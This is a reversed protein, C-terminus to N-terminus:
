EAVLLSTISKQIPVVRLNTSLQERWSYYHFTSILSRCQELTQAAVSPSRDRVLNEWFFAGALKFSGFQATSALSDWSRTQAVDQTRSHGLVIDGLVLATILRGDEFSVTGTCGPGPRLLFTGLVIVIRLGKLIGRSQRVVHDSTSCSLRIGIQEVSAVRIIM